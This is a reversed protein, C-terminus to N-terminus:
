DAFSAKGKSDVLDREAISYDRQAQGLKNNAESLSDRYM